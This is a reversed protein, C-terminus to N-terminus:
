SLTNNITELAILFEDKCKVTICLVTGVPENANVVGGLCYSKEEININDIHENINEGNDTIEKIYKDLKGLSIQCYKEGYELLCVSQLESLSLVRLIRKWREDLEFSSM